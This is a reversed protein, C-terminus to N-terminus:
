GHLTAEASSRGAAGKLTIRRPSSGPTFAPEGVLDRERLFDSRQHNRDAVIAGQYAQRLVTMNVDTLRYINKTTGPVKKDCRFHRCIEHRQCLPM